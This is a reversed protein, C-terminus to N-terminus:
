RTSDHFSLVLMYPWDLLKIYLGQGDTNEMEFGQGYPPDHLEVQRLPFGRELLGLIYDILEEDSPSESHRTFVLLGERLARKTFEWKRAEIAEILERRVEAHPDSPIAM